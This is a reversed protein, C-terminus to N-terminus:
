KPGHTALWRRIEEHVPAKQRVVLAREPGILIPTITGEGDGKHWSQPSVADLIKQALENLDAESLEARGVGVPYVEIRSFQQAKEATTIWLFGDEVVYVLRLRGLLRDLVNKLPQREWKGSVKADSDIKKDALAVEDCLIPIGAADRLSEIVDSFDIADSNSFPSEKAEVNLSVPASLARVIRRRADTYGLPEGPAPQPQVSALRELKSLRDLLELIQEHASYTQRVLLVDFVGAAMAVIVGQGGAERWSTPAVSRRIVRLLDDAAMKTAHTADQGLLDAVVCVETTPREDAREQRTILLVENDIRCTLNRNHLMVWLGTRLPVGKLILTVPTDPSVGVDHLEKADLQIEIKHLDKLYEIVDSLPTEIFELETPSALAARIKQTAPSNWVRSGPSVPAPVEPGRAFGRLLELLEVIQEQIDASQEVVLFKPAESPDLSLSGKGGRAQWAQPAYAASVFRTLADGRAKAGEPSVNPRLVGEIAHRRTVIHRAALKPTTILLVGEDVVCTLDLEGFMLKLASGLTVGKLNRTIPTDPSVGVDNLSKLDLLVEIKHLDKLYKVVDKLPTEVFELTTPSRLAAEIKEDASSDALERAFSCSSSAHWVVVGVGLLVGVLSLWKSM